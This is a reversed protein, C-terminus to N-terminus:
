NGAMPKPALLIKMKQQSVRESKDRGNVKALTASDIQVGYDRTLDNALEEFSKESQVAV